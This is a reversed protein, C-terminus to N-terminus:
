SNGNFRIVLRSKMICYDVINRDLMKNKPNSFQAFINYQVEYM